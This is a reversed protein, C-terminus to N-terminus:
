LIGIFMHLNEYTDLYFQKVIDFSSTTTGENEFDISDQEFYQTAIFPFLAKYVGIFANELKYIQEQM